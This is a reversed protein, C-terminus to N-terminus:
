SCWRLQNKTWDELFPIWHIEIQGMIYNGIYHSTSWGVNVKNAYNFIIRKVNFSLEFNDPTQIQKKVVMFVLLHYGIGKGM